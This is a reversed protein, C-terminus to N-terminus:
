FIIGFCLLTQWYHKRMLLGQGPLSTDWPTLLSVLCMYMSLMATVGSYSIYVPSQFPFSSLSVRLKHKCQSFQAPRAPFRYSRMGACLWPWAGGLVLPVAPSASKLCVRWIRTVLGLLFCLGKTKLQSFLNLRVKSFRLFPFRAITEKPLGHLSICIDKNLVTILAQAVQPIYPVATGEDASNM